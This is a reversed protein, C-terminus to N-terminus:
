NMYQNLTARTPYSYILAGYGFITCYMAGEYNIGYYIFSNLVIVVFLLSIRILSMRNFTKLIEPESKGRVKELSRTFGKLALPILGITVMVGTVQLMYISKAELVMALAGKYLYEGEFAVVIILAAIFAVIYNFRLSKLIREKQMKM